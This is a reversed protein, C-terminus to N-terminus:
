RDQRKVSQLLVPQDEFNEFVLVKNVRDMVIKTASSMTGKGQGTSDLQIDIVTYPYDTSRSMASMEWFSIPRDTAATIHQRGQSTQELQAFKLELGVSATGAIRGLGPLRQMTELLKKPGGERIANSILEGEAATSWRQITITVPATAPPDVTRVAMATLRMPTQASARFAPAAPKDQPSGAAALSAVLVAAGLATTLTLAFLPDSQIRRFM